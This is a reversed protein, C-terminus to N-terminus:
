FAGLSPATRLRPLGGPGGFNLTLNAGTTTPHAGEDTPQTTPPNHSKYLYHDNLASTIYWMHLYLFAYARM